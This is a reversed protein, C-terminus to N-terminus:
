GGDAYEAPVTSSSLDKLDKGNAKAVAGSHMRTVTAYSRALRQKSVEFESLLTDM